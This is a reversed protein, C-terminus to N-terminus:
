TWPVSWYGQPFPQGKPLGGPQLFPTVPAELLEMATFWHCLLFGVALLSYGWAPCRSAVCTSQLLAFNVLQIHTLLKGKHHFCGLMSQTLWLAPSLDLFSIVGKHKVDTLNCKSHLTWNQCKWPLVSMSISFCTWCVVVLILPFSSCM